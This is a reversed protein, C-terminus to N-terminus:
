RMGTYDRDKLIAKLRQIMAATQQVSVEIKRFEALQDAEFKDAVSNHLECCCLSIVSLQNIIDHIASEVPSPSIKRISKQTEESREDVLPLM